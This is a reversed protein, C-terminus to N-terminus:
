QKTLNAAQRHFRAAQYHFTKRKPESRAVKGLRECKRALALKVDALRRITEEKSM